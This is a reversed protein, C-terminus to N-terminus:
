LCFEKQVEPLEPPLKIGACHKNGKVCFGRPKMCAGVKYHLYACYLEGATTLYATIVLENVRRDGNRRKKCVESVNCVFHNLVFGIGGCCNWIEHAKDAVFVGHKKGM